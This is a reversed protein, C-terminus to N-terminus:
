RPFHLGHGLTISYFIFIIAVAAIAGTRRGIVEPQAFDWRRRMARLVFFLPLNMAVSELEAGRVAAIRGTPDLSAALGAGVAAALYPWAVLRFIRRGRGSEDTAVFGQLGRAMIRIALWYLAVGVAFTLGRWLAAPHLQFDELVFSWDGHGSVGTQCFCGAVWCLNFVCFLLLAFRAFPPRRLMSDRRVVWFWLGLGFLLNATPGGAAMLASGPESRFIVSTLVTVRAGSALCVLTHGFVEHVVNAVMYSAVGIAGLALLDDFNEASSQKV